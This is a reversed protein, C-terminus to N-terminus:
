YNEILRLGYPTQLRRVTQGGYGLDLGYDIEYYGRPGIRVPYRRPYKYPELAVFHAGENPHSVRTATIPDYVWGERVKVQGNTTLENALSNQLEEIGLFSFKLTDQEM